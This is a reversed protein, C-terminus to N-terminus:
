FWVAPSLWTVQGLQQQQLIQASECYGCLSPPLAFHVSVFSPSIQASCSPKLDTPLITDKWCVNSKDTYHVAAASNLRMQLLMAGLSSCAQQQLTSNSLTDAIATTGVNMANSTFRLLKLNYLSPPRIGAHASSKTCCASVIVYVDNDAQHIFHQHGLMGYQSLVSAVVVNPSSRSSGEHM